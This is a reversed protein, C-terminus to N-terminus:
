NSFHLEQAVVPCVILDNLFHKFSKQNGAALELNTVIGSYAGNEDVVFLRPSNTKAMLKVCEDLTADGNVTTIKCNMVRGATLRQPNLGDNITKICIDHETVAGIPNKHALSEVIPICPCDNEMMMRFVTQLPTDSLCYIEKCTSIHKALM